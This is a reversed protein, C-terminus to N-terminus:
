FVRLNTKESFVVSITLHTLIVKLSKVYIALSSRFHTISITGVLLLRFIGIMKFKTIETFCIHMIVINKIM